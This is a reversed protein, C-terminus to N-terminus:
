KGSSVDGSLRTSVAGLLMALAGFLALSRLATAAHVYPRMAATVYTPAAGDALQQGVIWEEWLGLLAVGAVAAVALVLAAAMLRPRPVARDGRVALLAGAAALSVGTVLTVPARLGFLATAGGLAITALALRDDGKASM